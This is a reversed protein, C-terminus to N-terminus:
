KENIGGYIETQPSTHTDHFPSKSDDPGNHVLTPTPSTNKDMFPDASGPSPRPDPSVYTSPPITPYQALREAPTLGAGLSTTSSGMDDKQWEQVRLSRQRQLPDGRLIPSNPLSGFSPYRHRDDGIRVEWSAKQWDPVLEELGDSKRRKWFLDRLFHWWTDFFVAAVLIVVVATFSIVAVGIIKWSSDSSIANNGVPHDQKTSQAQSTATVTSGTLSAAPQAQTTSALRSEPTATASSSTTSTTDKAKSTESGTSFLGPLLELSAVSTSDGHATTAFPRADSTGQATKEDTPADADGGGLGGLLGSFDRRDEVTYARALRGHNRLPLAYTGLVHTCCALVVLITPRM